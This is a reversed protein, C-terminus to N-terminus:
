LKQTFNSIQLETQIFFQKNEHRRKSSMYLCDRFVVLKTCHTDFVSIGNSNFNM